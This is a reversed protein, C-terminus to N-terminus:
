PTPDGWRGTERAHDILRQGAPRMFGDRTLREARERNRPGWRSTPSRPTFKLYTSGADRAKAKSDVWGFCLAHEIAEHWGVSAVGSGRKHVIVWVVREVAGHEVLWTRWADLSAMGYAPVGDVLEAVPSTTRAMDCGSEDQCIVGGVGSSGRVPLRWRPNIAVGEVFLATLPRHSPTGFSM